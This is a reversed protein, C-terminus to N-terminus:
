EGVSVLCCLCLYLVACVIALLSTRRTALLQQPHRHCSSSPPSRLYRLIEAETDAYRWYRLIGAPTDKAAKLPSIALALVQLRVRLETQCLLFFTHLINSNNKSPTVEM